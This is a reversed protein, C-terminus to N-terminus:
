MCLLFSVLWLILLFLVLCQRGNQQTARHYCILPSSTSQHNISSCLHFLNVVVANITSVEKFTWAVMTINDSGPSLVQWTPYTCILPSMAEQIIIAALELDSNTTWGKPNDWSILDAVVDPPWEVRWIFHDGDSNSNLEVGDSGISSTDIYVLDTALRHLIETLYTFRTEM